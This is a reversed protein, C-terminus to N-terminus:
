PRRGNQPAPDDVPRDSRGGQPLTSARNQAQMARKGAIERLADIVIEQEADLDVEPEACKDLYFQRAADLGVVPKGSKPKPMPRATYKPAPAKDETEAIAHEVILEVLADVGRARAEAKEAKSQRPKPKRGEAKAFARKLTPASVRQEEPLTANIELAKAKAENKKGRGGKSVPDAHDPKEASMKVLAVIADARESKLM